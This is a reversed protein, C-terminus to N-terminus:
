RVRSPLISSISAGYFCNETTLEWNETFDTHALCVSKAQVSFQRSPVVSNGDSGAGVGDGDM